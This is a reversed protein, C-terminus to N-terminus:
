ASVPLLAWQQDAVQYLEIGSGSFLVMICHCPQRIGSKMQAIILLSHLDTDFSTPARLITFLQQSVRDWGHFYSTDFSTALGLTHGARADRSPINNNREPSTCPPRRPPESLYAFNAFISM